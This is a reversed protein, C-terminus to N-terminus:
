PEVRCMTQFGKLCNRSLASPDSVQLAAMLKEVEGQAKAQEKQTKGCEKGLKEAQTRATKAEVM